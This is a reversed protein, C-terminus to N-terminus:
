IRGLSYMVDRVLRITDEMDVEEREGIMMAYYKSSVVGRDSARCLVGAKMILVEGKDSESVVTDNVGRDRIWM